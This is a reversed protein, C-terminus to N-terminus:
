GEAEITTVPVAARRAIRNPLDLKLWQSFRSPLTSVIIEDFAAQEELAAEAAALPDESGVTGEAQGGVSEIRDVMMDLRQEARNRAEALETEYTRAREEMMGDMVAEPVGRLAFGGTWASTEHEVRTMPVVVYFLGVDRSLCDKVARDLADGGLTQNAVLLCRGSM